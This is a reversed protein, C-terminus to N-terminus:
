RDERTPERKKEHERSQKERTKEQIKLLRKIINPKRNMVRKTYEAFCDTIADAQGSKFLLLYKKPGIKHFAYDVIYEKALRDFLRTEGNIPISNTSVCHKRLEKVSQKGYKLKPDKKSQEIKRLAASFAKALVRSTLKSASISLAITRREVDEQLLIRGKM